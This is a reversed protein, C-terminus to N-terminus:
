LEATPSALGEYHAAARVVLARRDLELVEAALMGEVGRYHLTVAGVGYLEAIPEFHLDPFRELARTWYARLAAKGVITGTADSGLSAIFPSSFVVDDAYHSLVRDLDHANWAEYWDAVLARCAAPDLPTTRRARAARLASEADDALRRVIDAAPAERALEHTEGAWLNILDANGQERAQRRLPATVYHLEPYAVPAHADHEAMFRNRIGRALRGTFARTLATPESTALAARHAPTTGAEPALMFATGIQAARAGATLVAALAAGTAIGGSAVLPLPTTARVLSLLSLLGVAPLDPRDDFSARHGGAEGGQVVLTDAGAREAQRAEDASTVTVWVEAGAAHVRDVVRADPCGFTFSAVEPPQEALLDLKADWGDDGYRPEGIEVGAQEAWRGLREVYAAYASRDAPGRGPAFVNVGLPGDTLRRATALRAGLDEATLYGAAM